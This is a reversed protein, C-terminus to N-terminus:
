KKSWFTIAQEAKKAGSGHAPFGVIVKRDVRACLQCSECTVDDRTTAPCIVISRGQPTTTNTTQTSPLVVVVPAIELAALTDAHAPTNASLNVTFGWDNAGKIYAANDGLEPAHHTYTFGRKGINAAVLYGMLHGDIRGHGDQPLDGAQNHRWL